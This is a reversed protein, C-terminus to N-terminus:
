FEPVFIFSDLRLFTETYGGGLSEPRKVKINYEIGPENSIIYNMYARSDKINMHLIRDVIFKRDTNGNISVTSLILRNTIDHDYLVEETDELIESFETDITNIADKINDYQSDSIIDEDEVVKKIELMASKLQSLKIKKNEEEKLERLKKTDLNTLFKFKITDGGVPTTFDFYGDEDGKLNFNRYSLKSLDVESRFTKGTKEDVVNIPYENGYGSARLWIIIADRDGQVLTDPDVGRVKNKLIHDIFKGKRYLNPSMILNEDYATLYDVEVEKMKNKYCEGKSPLNVTDYSNGPTPQKVFFSDKAESPNTLLENKVEPKVTEEKPESTNYNVSLNAAMKEYENKSSANEKEAKKDMASNMKEMYKKIEDLNKDKEDAAKLAKLLATRATKKVPKRSKLDEEKGGLELYKSIIDKQMTEMLELTDSVSKDSYIRNGDADKKNKRVEIMEKKSAEYMDYSSELIKLAQLREEEKAM